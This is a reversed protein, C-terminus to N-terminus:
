HFVNKEIRKKNKQEIDKNKETKISKENVNQNKRFSGSDRYLERLSELSKFTCKKLM